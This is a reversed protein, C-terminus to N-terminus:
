LNSLQTRLLNFDRRLISRFIQKVIYKPRLYFSRVAQKCYEKLEDETFNGLGRKSNAMVSFDDNKNIQGNEIADNWLDSGFMYMLPLFLVIDFPLSCAFRITQKIHKETEIPAGLIFNGTTIFNMERSLNMAYRIQKLTINKNYFDLVDQNGSEIGFELYTVGAKKMKTYLDRDASDVRAGAILIDSESGIEILRDMMTHARKKDALFNDDVIYVSNYKENIEQIESVVNEASRQRYIKYSIALRSCFRCGFPCGRSSVLSTLKPKFLYTDNIKGYDYKDVLHRSPFPISDLDKIIKHPKGRKIVNNKRYFIGPLESLNKNTGELIKAVEKIVYDGEGEICIDADPIHLLSTKPHFTCHPGGIIVPISSDIEKIKKVIHAADKYSSTNVSLGVADIDKLSKRLYNEEFHESFAHVVEVKHGDDELARGIYLLGLPPTFPNKLNTIKRAFVITSRGHVNM